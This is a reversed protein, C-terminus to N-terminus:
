AKQLGSHALELSEVALTNRKGKLSPGSWKTPYAESFHWRWKENGEIDTIIIFGSKRTIKGKVFNQHWKWLAESNTLGKKLVINSYKTKKPLKHVYENVGGEEISEIETEAQLGSVESFGGVIVGQIEVLFRFGSYACKKKNGIFSV